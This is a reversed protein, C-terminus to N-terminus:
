ARLNFTSPVFKLSFILLGLAILSVFKKSRFNFLFLAIHIVVMPVIIFGFPALLPTKSPPVINSLISLLFLLNLGLIMGTKTKQFFRVFFNPKARKM